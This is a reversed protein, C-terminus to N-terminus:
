AISTSDDKVSAVIGNAVALVPTNEPVIFRIFHLLKCYGVTNLLGSVPKTMWLPLYINQIEEDALAM